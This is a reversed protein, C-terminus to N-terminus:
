TKRGGSARAAKMVTVSRQIARRMSSNKDAAHYIRLRYSVNYDLKLSVTMSNFATDNGLVSILRGISIGSLFHKDSSPSAAKWLTAEM